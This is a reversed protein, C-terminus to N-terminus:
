DDTEENTVILRFMSRISLVIAEEITIDYLYAIEDLQSIVSPTLKIELKFKSPM